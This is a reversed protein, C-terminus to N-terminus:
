SKLVVIAVGVALLTGVGVTLGMGALFSEWSGSGSSGPPPPTYQTNTAVAGGTSGGPGDASVFSFDQLGTLNSNIVQGMELGADMVNSGQGNYTFSVVFGHAEPGSQVNTFNSDGALSKNIDNPSPCGILIPSNCSFHFYYKEGSVMRSSTDLAGLGGLGRVRPLAVGRAHADIMAANLMAARQHGSLVLAQRRAIADRQAAAVKWDPLTSGLRQYQPRFGTPNATDARVYGSM